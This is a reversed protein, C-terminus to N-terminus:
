ARYDDDSTQAARDRFVRAVRPGAVYGLILAVFLLLAGWWATSIQLQFRLLLYIGATGLAAGVVSFVVLKPALVRSENQQRIRLEQTLFGATLALASGLAGWARAIAAVIALLCWLVAFGRWWPSDRGSDTM